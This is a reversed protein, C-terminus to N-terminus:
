TEGPRPYNHIPANIGYIKVKKGDIIYFEMPGYFDYTAAMKGAPNYGLARAFMMQTLKTEGVGFSYDITPYDRGEFGQFDEPSFWIFKPTIHPNSLESDPFVSIHGEEINKHRTDFIEPDLTDHLLRRIVSDGINEPHLDQLENNTIASLINIHGSESLKDIFHQTKLMAECQDDDISLSLHSSIIFKFFFAWIYPMFAGM